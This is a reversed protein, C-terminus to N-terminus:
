EVNNDQVWNKHYQTGISGLYADTSGREIESKIEETWVISKVLIKIEIIKVMSM